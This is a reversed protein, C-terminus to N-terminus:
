LTQCAALHTPDRHWTSMCSCLLDDHAHNSCCPVVVSCAVLDARLQKNVQLQTNHSLDLYTLKQCRALTRPLFKINNGHLVLRRLRQQRALWTPIITILNNSLDLEELQSGMLVQLCLITDIAEHSCPQECPSCVQRM